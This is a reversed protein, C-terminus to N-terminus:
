KMHFKHFEGFARKMFKMHLSWEHLDEIKLMIRFLSLVIIIYSSSKCGGCPGVGAATFIFLNQLFLTEPLLFYMLSTFIASKRSANNTFYSM